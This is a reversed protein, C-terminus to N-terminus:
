FYMGQTLYRYTGKSKFGALEESIGHLEDLVQLLLVFIVHVQVHM